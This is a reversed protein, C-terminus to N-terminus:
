GTSHLRFNQKCFFFLRIIHHHFIFCTKESNQNRSIFYRFIFHLHLVPFSIFLLEIVGIGKVGFDAQILFLLEACADTIFNILFQARMGHGYITYGTHIKCDPCRIGKTNGHNTIKVVPVAPCM